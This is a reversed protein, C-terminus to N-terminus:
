APSDWEQVMDGHKSDTGGTVGRLSAYGPSVHELDGDAVSSLFAQVMTLKLSPKLPSGAMLTSIANILYTGDNGTSGVIRVVQGIAFEAPSAGVLVVTKPGPSAEYVAYADEFGRGDMDQVGRTVDELLIYNRVFDYFAAFKLAVAVGSTTTLFNATASADTVPSQYFAVTGIPYSGSQGLRTFGEIETWGTEATPISGSHAKSAVVVVASLDGVAPMNATISSASAVAVQVIHTPAKGKTDDIEVLVATYNDMTTPVGNVLFTLLISGSVAVGAATFAQMLHTGAPNQVKSAQMWSAGTPGSVAVSLNVVSANGVTVYLAYRRGAKTSISPITDYAVNQNSKSAALAVLPSALSMFTTAPKDLWLDYVDDYLFGDYVEYITWSDYISDALVDFFQVRDGVAYHSLPPDKLSVRNDYVDTVRFWGGDPGFVFPNLTEGSVVNIGVGERPMQHLLRRLGSSIVAGHFYAILAAPFTELLEIKTVQEITSAMRLIDEVTGNSVNVAAKWALLVRYEADSVGDRTIGLLEGLRDLQEGYATALARLDALKQFEGELEQIGWEAGALEDAILAAVAANDLHAPMQLLTGADVMDKVTQATVGSARAIATGRYFWLSYGESAPSGEDVLQASGARILAAGSADFISSLDQDRVLFTYDVTSTDPPTPKTSGADIVYLDDDDAWEGVRGVIGDIFPKWADRSHATPLLAATRDAHDPIKKM